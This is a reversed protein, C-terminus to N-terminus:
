YNRRKDTSQILGVLMCVIEHLIGKLMKAMHPAIEEKVVLIDLCAACEMASGRAIDFFRCKDRPTFKGNGEAINLPISISAREIQDRIPTRSKQSDLIQNLKNVFLISDRYVKLKEHNFEVKM